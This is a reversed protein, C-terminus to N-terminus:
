ATLPLEDPSSSPERRTRRSRSRRGPRQRLQEENPTWGAHEARHHHKCYVRLEDLRTRGSRVYEFVHHVDVFDRCDCGKVECRLGWWEVVTQQYATLNRGVHTVNMVDVGDKIVIALAADGLLRRAADVSVPGVGRIECMEDGDTHGRRLAELDVTVIVKTNRAQSSSVGTGSAAAEVMALFGDAAYAALPERRGERRAQEFCRQTFAALVANVRAGNEPSHAFAFRYVGDTGVAGRARRAREIRRRRQEEDEGAAQARRSVNRLENLSEEAAAGLLESEASPDAAAGAVVERAQQDSLRGARYAEATAPLEEIQAATELKAKAEAVSTGIRRALWHAASREGSGKWGDCSAVRAAFLTEAASALRKVDSLVDLLGLADEVAYVGPELEAVWAALEDRMGAAVFMHEIIAIWASRRLPWAVINLRRMTHWRLGRRLTASALRTGVMMCGLHSLSRAARASRGLLIVM